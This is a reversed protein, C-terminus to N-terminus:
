ATEQLMRVYDELIGRANAPCRIVRISGETIDFLKGLSEDGTLSTILGNNFKVTFMILIPGANFVVKGNDAGSAATHKTKWANFATDNLNLEKQLATLGATDSAEFTRKNSSVYLAECAIETDALLDAIAKPLTTGRNDFFDKLNTGKIGIRGTIYVPEGQSLKTADPIMIISPKGSARVTIAFGVHMDGDCVDPPLMHVNRALESAKVLATPKESNPTNEKPTISEKPGNDIPTNGM